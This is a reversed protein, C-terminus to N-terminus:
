FHLVVGGALQFNSQTQQFFHTQVYDGEARFSVHPNLRYDAGGGLEM